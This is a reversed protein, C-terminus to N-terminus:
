EGQVESLFLIEFTHKNQAILTWTLIKQESQSRYTCVVALNCTRGFVLRIPLM